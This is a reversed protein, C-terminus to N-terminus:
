YHLELFNYDHQLHDASSSCLSFGSIVIIWKLWLTLLRAAQYSSVVGLRHFFFVNDGHCYCLYFSLTYLLSANLTAATHPWGCWMVTETLCVRGRVWLAVRRCGWVETYHGGWVQGRKWNSGAQERTLMFAESQSLNVSQLGHQVRLHTPKVRLEM